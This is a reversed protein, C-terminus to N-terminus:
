VRTEFVGSNRMSNVETEIHCLRDYIRIIARAATLENSDESPPLSLYSEIINQCHLILGSRNYLYLSIGIDIFVIAWTCAFLPIFVVYMFTVIM